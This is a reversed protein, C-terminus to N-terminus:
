SQDWAEVVLPEDPDLAALRELDIHATGTWGRPLVYDDGFVPPSDHAPVGSALAGALTGASVQFRVPYGNGGLLTAKGAAVLDEIWSLGYLGVMWSAILNDRGAQGKAGEPRARSIFIEWGLM